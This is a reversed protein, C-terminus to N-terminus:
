IRLTRYKRLRVHRYELFTLIKDLTIDKKRPYYVTTLAPQLFTWKQRLHMLEHYYRYNDFFRESKLQINHGESKINKRSLTDFMNYAYKRRLESITDAPLFIQRSLKSKLFTADQDFKELSEDL